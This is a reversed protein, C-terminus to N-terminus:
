EHTGGKNHTDIGSPLREPVQPMLTEDELSSLFLVINKEDEKSLKPGDTMHVHWHIDLKLAKPAAHGRTNNYFSVVEELDTFQGAHFYPATKSINRLTPVKFAGQYQASSNWNGAGLDYPQGAKQPSGIVSLENDTFLPPIHCQSCRGVFGRFVNYGKIEEESLASADGHVYRDYRSNLSILSSQFAALATAVSAVSPPEGFVAMFWNLYVPNAGLDRALGEETNGMEQESFLPLKAQESLSAARGDWMYRESFGSNWLTPASRALPVKEGVENQAGLSVELGDSLSKDVQHCSACSMDKNKSLLPDFFLFRGLDIQQPTYSKKQVPLNVRFGGHEAPSDYFDYLSRLQCLGQQDLEFSPPCTDSLTLTDRALAGGSLPGASFLTVVVALLARYLSLRPRM